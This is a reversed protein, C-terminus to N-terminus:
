VGIRPLKIRVNDLWVFLRGERPRGHIHDVSFCLNDICKSHWGSKLKDPSELSSYTTPFSLPINHTTYTLFTYYFISSPFKLVNKISNIKHFIKTQRLYQTVIFYLWNHFCINQYQKIQTLFIVVVTIKKGLSTNKYNSHKYNGHLINHRNLKNRIKHM